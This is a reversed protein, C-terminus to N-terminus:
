MWDECVMGLSLTHCGSGIKWKLFILNLYTSDSVWLWVLDSTTSNPGLGLFFFALTIGSTVKRVMSYATADRPSIMSSCKSETKYIEM